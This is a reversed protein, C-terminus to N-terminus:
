FTPGVWGSFIRGGKCFAASWRIGCPSWVSSSPLAWRRRIKLKCARWRQSGSFRWCFLWRWGSLFIGRFIGRFESAVVRQQEETIAAAQQQAIVPQLGVAPIGMLSIVQLLTTFVGYEGKPLARAVIPHVLYMLAGSAVGAMMMWGSQRFFMVHHKETTAPSTETKAASM